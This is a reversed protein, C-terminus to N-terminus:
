ALCWVVCVCVCVGVCVCVCVCVSVWVCVCVCVSVCDLACTLTSQWRLNCACSLEVVRRRVAVACAVCHSMYVCACVRCLSCACMRACLYVRANTGLQRVSEAGARVRHREAAQQRRVAGARARAQTCICCVRCPSRLVYMECVAYVCRTMCLVCVVFRAAAACTSLMARSPNAHV